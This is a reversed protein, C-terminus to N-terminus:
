HAALFTFFGLEGAHQRDEAPICSHRVWGGVGGGARMLHQQILQVAKARQPVRKTALLRVPNKGPCPLVGRALM